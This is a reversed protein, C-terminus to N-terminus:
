KSLQRVLNLVLTALAQEAESWVVIVGCSLNGKLTGSRKLLEIM